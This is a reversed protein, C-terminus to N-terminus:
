DELYRKIWGIHNYNNASPECSILENAKSLLEKYNGEDYLANVFDKRVQPDLADMIVIDFPAIRPSDDVPFNDIFWQFADRFIVEVRSDDFCSEASGTLMSCDSWSALHEKSIQVMMEDIEIMTVHEVTSHKLVERLSAGEGGGIIAVRKPNPHAFLTPHILTEHYAAEGSRRSQLVGDLFVIRDPAFLESHLKEYSGDNHLSKDYSEFNQVNPIM